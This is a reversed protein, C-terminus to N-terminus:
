LSDCRPTCEATSFFNEVKHRKPYLEDLEKQSQTVEKTRNSRHPAVMNIGKQRLQDDLLDSDYAKDGVLNEPNKQLAGVNLTDEVLQSEHPTASIVHIAVPIANEEVVAMIKSGKGCKTNGVEDMGGKSRAFTADIFANKIKLLGAEQTLDILLTHLVDYTGDECWKQHWRHVTSKPPFCPPLRRWQSGTDLIWFIAHVIKKLTYKQPRGGKASRHYEFCSKINKWILEFKSDDM